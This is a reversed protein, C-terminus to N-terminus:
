PQLGNLSTGVPLCDTSGEVDSCWQSGADTSVVYWFADSFTVPDQGSVMSNIIDTLASTDLGPLGGDGGAVQTLEETSLERMGAVMKTM